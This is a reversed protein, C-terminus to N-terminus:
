FNPFDESLKLKDVIHKVINVAPFSCNKGLCIAIFIESKQSALICCRSDLIGMGLVCSLQKLTM